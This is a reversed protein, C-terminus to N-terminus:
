CAQNTLEYGLSIYKIISANRTMLPKECIQKEATNVNRRM